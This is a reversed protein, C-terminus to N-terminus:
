NSSAPCALYEVKFIGHRMKDCSLELLIMM